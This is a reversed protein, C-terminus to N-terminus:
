AARPRAAAREDLLAICANVTRVCPVPVGALEALEILAGLIAARETPRGREVDQTMSTKSGVRIAFSRDLRAATDLRTDVGYAAAVRECERMLEISLARTDPHRATEDITAGTLAGIPNAWVNSLLKDWVYRRVDVRKAPLAGAAFLEVVRQARAEDRAFLPGLRLADGPNAPNHVRGPEVVEAAMTAFGPLPALSGFAGLLRGDPDVARLPRDAHPGEAGAFFWWPLGNHVPVFAQASRARAVLADLEGSWQHAKLTVLVTDAPPAADISGHAELPALREGAPTSFRLGRQARIADLHAGRCVVSVAHGAFALHAALMGGIAGAGIVLVTRM